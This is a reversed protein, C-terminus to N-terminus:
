PNEARKMAFKSMSSARFRWARGSPCIQGRGGTSLPGTPWRGATRLRPCKAPERLPRTADGLYAGGSTVVVTVDQDDPRATRSM